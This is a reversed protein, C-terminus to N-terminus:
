QLPELYYEASDMTQNFWAGDASVLPFWWASPRLGARELGRTSIVADRIMAIRKLEAELEINRYIQRSEVVNPMQVSQNQEDLLHNWAQRLNKVEKDCEQIKTEFDQRMELNSETPTKEFIEARWHRGKEHELENRKAKWKRIQTAIEARQRRFEIIQTALRDLEIHAQDYNAELSKWAPASNNSLHRILEVSSQKSKLEDLVQQQQTAVDRWREAFSGASVEQAGFTRSLPEPLTLWSKVVSLSDWTHYKVRLIPNVKAQWGAALLNQHLKRSHKVYSSAGEHFLFVFERALMGILTVAKGILVCDLGFKLEIAEALDQISQIPKKLTIFQPVHTMIIIAKPAVRLTGRGIGPLVIEFPLAWSSFRKLPYIETGEVVSDYAACAETRNQLFFNVIDFRPLHATERNFKLLHTTRTTEVEIEPAVRKALAPLLREYYDTLTSTTLPESLNCAEDLLARAQSAVREPSCPGASIRSLDVAWELTQFLEPFLRNLKTEATITERHDLAVVGRWGFAETAADLFGPRERVVKALKAGHTRLFDRTIVTESGFLKSFEAAASWLERTTTDNHAFAKYGGRSDPPLGPLKAFYDTDHVGAVLRRPFGLVEARRAVGAKLPEDWFVTQGLALFPADGALKALEALVTEQQTLAVPM